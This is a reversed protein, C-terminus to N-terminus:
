RMVAKALAWVVAIAIALALVLGAPHHRSVARELLEPTPTPSADDRADYVGV